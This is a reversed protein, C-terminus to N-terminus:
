RLAHEAKRPPKPCALEPIQLRIDPELDPQNPQQPWPWLAFLRPDRLYLNSHASGQLLKSRPLPACWAQRDLGLTCLGTMLPSWLCGDPTFKKRSTTAPAAQCSESMPSVMDAPHACCPRTALATCRAHAGTSAWARVVLKTKHTSPQCEM